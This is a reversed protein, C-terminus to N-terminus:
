PKSAVGCWMPAHGVPQDPQEPRWQPLEVIGPEVLRLGDFFREFEDSSRLVVSEEMRDNLSQFTAELEPTRALHSLGLFSGPALEDVLRAVLGYPGGFAAPDADSFFHLVGFLLVAVPEAFDLTATAERLITDPDRLDKCLYATAGAVSGRLLRHAHAQAIPDYDVYVIRCEPAVRQAVEHVNNQKPIGSGLDLFQRIGKDTVLYRVVRGLLERHARADAKVGAVGGSWAAYADRAAERDVLFNASGGLLWDYVRCVRATTTDITPVEGAIGAASNGNDTM